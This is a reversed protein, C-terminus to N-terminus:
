AALEEDDDEEEDRAWRPADFPVPLQVYGPWDKVRRPAPCDHLCKRLEELWITLSKDAMLMLDETLELPVVEYPARTEVGLLFLGGSVDIGNAIAGRRYWAVQQPYLMKFAHSKWADPQATKTTKLDGIMHGATVIDVGSTSCTIGGEQWKLPVEFRAGDNLYRLALEDDRVAAAIAAAEKWEPDTLIEAGPNKAVCAEWDKGSRREGEYHVIPKAGERLCDFVIFHVATGLKMARTPETETNCSHLYQRGSLSIKKLDSFHVGGDAGATRLTPVDSPDTAGQWSPLYNITAEM